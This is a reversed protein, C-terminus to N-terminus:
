WGGRGRRLVDTRSTKDPTGLPVMVSRRVGFATALGHALTAADVDYLLAGGGVRVRRAQPHVAVNKMASLDTVVGGDTSSLGSTSHAGSRIAVDLGGACALGLAAVVDANSTCRAIVAPRRDIGANWVRRALRGTPHATVGPIPASEPYTSRRSSEAGTRSCVQYRSDLATAVSPLPPSM